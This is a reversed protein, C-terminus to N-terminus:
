GGLKGSSCVYNNNYGSVTKVRGKNLKKLSFREM